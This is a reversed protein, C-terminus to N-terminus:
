KNESERQKVVEEHALEAIKGILESRLEDVPVDKCAVYVKQIFGIYDKNGDIFSVVMEYFASKVVLENKKMRKKMKFYRIM